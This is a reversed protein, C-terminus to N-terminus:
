LMAMQLNSVHLDWPIERITNYTIQIILVLAEGLYVGLLRDVNYDEPIPGYLLTALTLQFRIAFEPHFQFFLYTTPYVNMSEESLFFFSAIGLIFLCCNKQKLFKLEIKYHIYKCGIFYGYFLVAFATSVKTFLKAYVYILSIYAYGIVLIALFMNFVCHPLLMGDGCILLVVGLVISLLTHCIADFTFTSIWFLWPSIRQIIRFETIEETHPLTWYAMIYFLLTVPLTNPILSVFTLSLDGMYNLAVPHNSVIIKTDSINLLRLILNNAFNIMFPHSIVINNQYIIDLHSNKDDIQIGGITKENYHVPDERLKDKFVLPLSFLYYFRFNM